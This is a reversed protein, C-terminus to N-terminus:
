TILKEPDAEKFKSTTLLNQANIYLKLREISLTKTLKTPFTYGLSLNKLRLYSADRLWWTSPLYNEGTGRKPMFLRPYKANRNDPTCHNNLQDKTLGAGNYLPVGLNHTLYIDIG